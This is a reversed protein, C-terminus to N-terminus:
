WTRASACLEAATSVAVELLEFLKEVSSDQRLFLEVRLLSLNERTLAYLHASTDGVALRRCMRRFWCPSCRPGDDM